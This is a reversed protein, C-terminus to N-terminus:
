ISTKLTNIEQGQDNVLIIGVAKLRDLPDDKLLNWDNPMKTKLGFLNSDIKKAEDYSIYAVGLNKYLINSLEIDSLKNEEILFWLENLLYTMPVIHEKWKKSSGSAQHQDDFITRSYGKLILINEPHFLNEIFRSHWGLSRNINKQFLMVNKIHQIALDCTNKIHQNIYEQENMKLVKM